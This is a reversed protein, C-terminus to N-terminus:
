GRVVWQEYTSQLIREDSLITSVQRESLDFGLARRAYPSGLSNTFQALSTGRRRREAEPDAGIFTVRVVLDGNRGGRAGPRGRGPVRLLAGETVGPPVRIKQPSLGRRDITFMGGRVAAEATMTLVVEISEGDAAEQPADRELVEKALTIRQFDATAIRIESEPRGAFRDPHMMRSRLRYANSIDTSSPNGSLGLVVLAEARRM